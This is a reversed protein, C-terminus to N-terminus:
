SWIVRKCQCSYSHLQVVISHMPLQRLLHQVNSARKTCKQVVSILMTCTPQNVIGKGELRVFPPSTLNALYYEGFIREIEDNLLTPDRDQDELKMMVDRKFQDYKTFVAIV